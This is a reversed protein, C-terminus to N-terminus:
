KETKTQTLRRVITDVLTSLDLCGGAVHRFNIVEVRGSHDNLFLGDFAQSAAELVDTRETSQRKTQENCRDVSLSAPQRLYFVLDPQPLGADCSLRWQSPLGFVESYAYGSYWYRDLFVFDNTRVMFEINKALEWRNASFLLHLTEPSAVSMEGDLYKSLVPGTMPAVDERLCPFAFSAIKVGSQRSELTQTVLRILTTKGSKDLGEFCVMIGMKREDEEEDEEKESDSM